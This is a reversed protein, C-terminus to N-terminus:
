EIQSTPMKTTVLIKEERQKRDGLRLLMLRKVKWKGMSLASFGNTSSLMSQITQYEM